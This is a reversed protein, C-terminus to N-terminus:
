PTGLYEGMVVATITTATSVVAGAVTITLYADKTLAKPAKASTARLRSATAITQGAAIFYTADVDSGDVTAYGVSITASANAADTILLLDAMRFYAPIFLPRIVDAIQVAALPKISEILHASNGYAGVRPTQKLLTPSDVNAM